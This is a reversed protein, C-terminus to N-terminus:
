RRKESQCRVWSLAAGADRRGGRDSAFVVGAPLPVTARGMAVAPQARQAVLEGHRTIRALRHKEAVAALAPAKQRASRGAAACTSTSGPRAQPSRSISRSAARSLAPLRGPLRSQAPWPRRWSRAITSRCSRTAARPPLDSKSCMMAAAARMCCSAAAAKVMRMSRRGRCRGSEPRRWPRSSASASGNAATRCRGTSCPAAAAAASFHRSRRSANPARSTSTFSNGGTPIARSEARGDGNRRALRLACLGARRRTPLATAAIRSATSANTQETM